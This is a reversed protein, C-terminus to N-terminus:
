RRAHDRPGVERDGPDTGIPAMGPTPPIRPESSKGAGPAVRGPPPEASAADTEVRDRGRAKARYLAEDARRILAEAPEDPRLAAVGFSGTVPGSPGLATEAMLGRIKEALRAGGAAGTMPALVAFEEGGWRACLDSERLHEELLRALGQLVRDGAPHGHQDNVRKFHDLDLMVLALPQRHRRARELEGALAGDFGARNLLGTLPDTAAQRAYRRARAEATRRQGRVASEAGLQRQMAVFAALILTGLLLTIVIGLIRNTLQSREPKLLVISWGAVPLERRIAIHRAGGYSLFRTASLPRDLIPAAGGGAGGGPPWLPRDERLGDDRLLVRGERSVLFATSPGDGGLLDPGLNRKVVAVGAVFGDPGRIPESAYYGPVLSTVGLGIFRGPRGALADVFYPRFAYSAGLFSDPRDRNSAAVATGARDLVYAVLDTRAAVVADVLEELAGQGPRDGWPRPLRAALRALAVSADDALGMGLAMHDLLQTASSEADAVIETEHLRGLRDTLLWGGALVAALSVVMVGFLRQRKGLVRGGADLSMALAWASIAFGAVLSARVLEAPLGTAGATAEATPWGGPLFPAAPVAIGASLGYAGVSAASWRWARRAGPTAALDRKREASALFLIATWLAAPAAVFLRIGAELSPTRLVVAGALVAAAVPLHLWRGPGGGRLLRHTRRAFELVADFSAAMLVTRLTRFAGSDGATLAVLEMWEVTGDLFAFLGLLRWSIPPLGARPMTVAVAGLLYLVLGHVFSIYDGQNGLLDTM